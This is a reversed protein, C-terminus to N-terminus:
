RALLLEVTGTLGLPVTIKEPQEKVQFEHPGIWGHEPQYYFPGCSNRRHGYVTIQLTHRGASLEASDLAYPPSYLVKEQGHDFTIGLASGSWRSINLRCRGSEPLEFTYNYVTNGSYFPMLQETLSRGSYVPEPLTLVSGQAVGFNGYLAVAELGAFDSTYCSRLKLTNVGCRLSGSQLDVVELAPDCWYGRSQNSQKIGNLEIVFREPSEIILQLTDEPVQRCEFTYELEIDVKGASSPPIKWPQLAAGARSSLGLQSRIMADGDLIYINEAVIKHDIQLNAHDLVLLNKESFAAPHEQLKVATGSSIAAAQAAAPLEGARGIIYCRSQLPALNAKWCLQGAAISFTNEYLEGSYIDLERVVCDPEAEVQWQLDSLVNQRELVNPMDFSDGNIACGVNVAFLLCTHDNLRKQCAVVGFAPQQAADKISYHAFEAALTGAFDNRDLRIFNKYLQALVASSDVQGDIYQPVAGSYYIRGGASSFSRLLEVTTSRLTLVEPLYVGRYLAKGVALRGDKVSGYKSMLAEDGYDFEVQAQVLAAGLSAFAADLTQDYSLKQDYSGACGWMSEVPHVVLLEAVAEANSLLESLRGFYDELAAYVRHWPSQGGISAPYDRKAQGRMTYWYLHQCRYNV